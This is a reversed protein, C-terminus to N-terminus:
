SLIHVPDPASRGGAGAVPGKQPGGNKRVATERPSSLAVVFILITSPSYYRHCKCSWRDWWQVTTGPNLPRPVWLKDKDPELWKHQAPSLFLSVDVARAAAHASHLEALVALAFGPVHPDATAREANMISM